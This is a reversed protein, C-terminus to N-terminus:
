GQSRKVPWISVHFESRVSIARSYARGGHSGPPLPDRFLAFYGSGIPQGNGSKSGGLRLSSPKGEEPPSPRPELSRPSRWKKHQENTPSSFWRPRWDVGIQM